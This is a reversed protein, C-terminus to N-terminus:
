PGRHRQKFEQDHETVQDKLHKIKRQDSTTLMEKDELSSIDWEIHTLLGRVKGRCRRVNVIMYAM